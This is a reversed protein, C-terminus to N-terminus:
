LLLLLPPIFDGRLSFIAPKEARVENIQKTFRESHAAILPVFEHADWKPKATGEPGPSDVSHDRLGPTDKVLAETKARSEVFHDQKSGFASFRRVM